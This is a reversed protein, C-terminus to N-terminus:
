EFYHLGQPTYLFCGELFDWISLFSFPSSPAIPHHKRVQSIARGNFGNTADCERSRNKWRCEMVSEVWYSYTCCSAVCINHAISSNSRKNHGALDVVAAVEIMEM